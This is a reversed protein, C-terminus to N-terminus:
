AERTDKMLIPVLALLPPVVFYVMKRRSYFLAGAACGLAFAGVNADMRSLRATAAAFSRVPSWDPMAPPTAACRAQM